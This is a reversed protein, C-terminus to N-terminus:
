SKNIESIEAPPLVRSALNKLFSTSGNDQYVYKIKICGTEDNDCYFSLFQVKAYKNDATRVVYVNKKATLKHTFYNYKYWKNLATNETHTRTSSDTLFNEEPAKKVNDFAVEGLDIVGARGFKNTAGGNTIVQGRRFALDWELSSSDFIAVSLGRSFDFYTWDKDSSANIVAHRTKLLNQSVDPEVPKSKEAEASVEGEQPLNVSPSELVQDMEMVKLPVWFVGILLISLCFNLLFINRWLKKKKLAHHQASHDNHGTETHTPTTM